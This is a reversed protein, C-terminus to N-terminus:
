NLPRSLESIYTVSTGVNAYYCIITVNQTTIPTRFVYLKVSVSQKLICFLLMTTVRHRHQANPITAVVFLDNSSLM